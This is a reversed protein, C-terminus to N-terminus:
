LAISSVGAGVPLADGANALLVIGHEALSRALRRNEPPDLDVPAAPAPSGPWGADLLGLEAKLRLVHRAARDVLDEPVAGERVLAALPEGYCVVEALEIDIGARLALAGAEGDTAAVRHMTRLFPVAGYDSVVTGAFGWEERLLTTLLAPNAGAPVGDVEAYSNMVARAGGERVAMEFPPLVVDAFERPGMSVPALNRGARSAAYGAFHKVTAVVGASQLGRVYATGLVGVLYPDEGFTEEVRGWRYDRVVDLLPSLGQHVGLARMGAGIAAAMLEVLEPDFTAAM